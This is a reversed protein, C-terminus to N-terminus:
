EKIARPHTLCQMSEGALSIQYQSICVVKDQGEANYGPPLQFWKKDITKCYLIGLLSGKERFVLTTELNKRIKNNWSHNDKFISRNPKCTIIAKTASNKIGHKTNAM